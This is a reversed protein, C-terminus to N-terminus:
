VKLLKNKMKMKRGGYINRERKEREKGRRLKSWKKGGNIQWKM